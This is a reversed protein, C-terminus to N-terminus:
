SKMIGKFKELLTWYMYIAKRTSDIGDVESVLLGTGKLCICRLM